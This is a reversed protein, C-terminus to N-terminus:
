RRTTSSRSCPIARRAALRISRWPSVSRPRSTADRVPFGKTRSGRSPSPAPRPWCGGSDTASLRVAGGSSAVERQDNNVDITDKIYTEYREADKAVEKHVFPREQAGAAGFSALLFIGILFTKLARM